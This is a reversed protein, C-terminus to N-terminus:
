REVLEFDETHSVDARVAGESFRATEAVPTGDEELKGISHGMESRPAETAHRDLGLHVIRVTDMFEHHIIVRDGDHRIQTPLGPQSYVRAAARVCLSCRRVDLLLRTV